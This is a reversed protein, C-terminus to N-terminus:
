KTPRPRERAGPGELPRFDAAFGPGSQDHDKTQGACGGVLGLLRRRVFSRKWGM